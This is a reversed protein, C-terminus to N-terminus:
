QQWGGGGWRWIIQSIVRVWKMTRKRVRVRERKSSAAPTTIVTQKGKFGTLAECSLSLQQQKPLQRPLCIEEARECAERWGKAPCWNASIM